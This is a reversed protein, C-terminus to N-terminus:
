NMTCQFTALANTLGFPMVKFEYLGQYTKFATKPEDSPTIRIQHYRNRLDIKSFYKSGGLEDLLDDIHPIPYMNKITIKILARYDICMRKMGDKKDVLLVLAGFPNISSVIYGQGL